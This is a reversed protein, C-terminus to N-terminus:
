RRRYVTIDSVETPATRKLTITMTRRDRDVVRSTQGVVRGGLLLVAEATYADVKRMRIADSTLSGTVAATVDNYSTVYEFSTRRGDAYTTVVTAKIGEHEPEYVRIESRLPPGPMFTSAAVDLEWTGVIPDLEGPTQAHIVPLHMSMAGTVVVVAITRVATM